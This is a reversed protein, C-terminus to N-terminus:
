VLLLLATSKLIVRCIILEKHYWSFKFRVIIIYDNLFTFDYLLNSSAIFVIRLIM